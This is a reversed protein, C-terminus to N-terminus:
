LDRRNPKSLYGNAVAVDLRGDDDVDTMLTAFAWLGRNVGQQVAVEAFGGDRALYLTNGQAFKALRAKLAANVKVAGIVRTGAKSFMNAVSLDLQGDGDFDGLDASMGNGPDDLGFTRADNRVGGDPLFAYLDNSGFDNALYLQPAGTGLLDGAVGALTWRPTVQSSPLAWRTFSVGPGGRAFVPRAGDRSELMDAPFGSSLDYPLFVVDLDGDGDFDAPVASVFNGRLSKPLPVPEFTAGENRLVVPTVMPDGTLLLDVDGDRDFDGGTVSTALVQRPFRYLTARAYRLPSASLRDFRLVENGDLTFVEPVGDGTVDRVTLGGAVLEAEGRRSLALAPLTLGAEEAREIFRPSARAVDERWTDAWSEITIAGVRGLVVDAEGRLSSREGSARRGEVEWLVHAAQRGNLTPELKLARLSCSTAWVLDQVPLHGDRRGSKVQGCFGDFAAEVLDNDRELQNLAAVPDAALASTAIFLLSLSGRM